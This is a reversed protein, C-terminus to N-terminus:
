PRVSPGPIGRGLPGLLQTNRECRVLTPRLVYTCPGLPPSRRRAVAVIPRCRDNQM